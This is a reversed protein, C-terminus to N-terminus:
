LHSVINRLPLALEMTKTRSGLDYEYFLKLHADTQSPEDKFKKLVDLDRANFRFSFAMKAGPNTVVPPNNNICDNLLDVVEDDGYFFQGTSIGHVDVSGMVVAKDNMRSSISDQLKELQMNSISWEVLFHFIGGAEIGEEQEWMILSVEPKNKLMSVKLNTPLYYYCQKCDAKQFVDVHFNEDLSITQNSSVALRQAAITSFCGFFLIIILIRM